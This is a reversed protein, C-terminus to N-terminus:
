KKISYFDNVKVCTIYDGKCDKVFNIALEMTNDSEEAKAFAALAIVLVLALKM